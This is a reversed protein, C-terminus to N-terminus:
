TLCLVKEEMIFYNRFFASNNDGRVEKRGKRDAMQEHRSNVSYLTIVGEHTVKMKSHKETSELRMSLLRAERGTGWRGAKM